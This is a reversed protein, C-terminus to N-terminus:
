RRAARRPCRACPRRARAAPIGRDPRGNRFPGRVPRPRADSLLSRDHRVVIDFIANAADFGLDDIHRGTGEHVAAEDRGTDLVVRAAILRVDNAHAVAPGDGIAEREVAVAELEERVLARHLVEEVLVLDLADIRVLHRLGHLGEGAGAADRRHAPHHAGRAIQRLVLALRGAIGMAAAHLRRGALRM